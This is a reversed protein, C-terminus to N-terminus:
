VKPSSSKSNSTDFRGGTEPYVNNDNKNFDYKAWNSYSNLMSPQNKRLDGILKAQSVDGNTSGTKKGRSNSRAKVFIKQNHVKVSNGLKRGVPSNSNVKGYVDRYKDQDM